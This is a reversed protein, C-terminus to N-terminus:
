DCLGSCNRRRKATKASQPEDQAILAAFVVDRGELLSAKVEELVHDTGTGTSGIWGDQILATFGSTGLYRPVNKYGIRSGGRSKKADARDLLYKFHAQELYIGPCLEDGKPLVASGQCLKFWSPSAVLRYDGGSEYLKACLKSLESMRSLQKDLQERDDNPYYWGEGERKKMRKYQLLVLSRRTLHYYLFDIGLAREPRDRNVNGVILSIDGDRFTRFAVDEAPVGRLGAFLEADRAIFQDEVGSSGATVAELFKPDRDTGLQHGLDDTQNIAGRDLGAWQLALGVADRQELLLQGPQGPLEVREDARRLEDLVDQMGYRIRGLADLLEEGGKTPLGGESHERLRKSVVHYEGPLEAELEAVTVSPVVPRVRTVAVKRHFAGDSPGATARAVYAVTAHEGRGTILLAVHCGQWGRRRPDTWGLDWTALDAGRRAWSSLLEEEDEICRIIAVM